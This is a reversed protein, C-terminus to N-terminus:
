DMSAGSEFRLREILRESLHIAVYLVQYIGEAVVQHQPIEAAESTRRRRAAEDLQEVSDNIWDREDDLLREYHQDAIDILLMSLRDAREKFANWAPLDVTEFLPSVKSKWRYRQLLATAFRMDHAAPPVLDDDCRYKPPLPENERETWLQRWEPKMRSAQEYAQRLVSFLDHFADRRTPRSRGRRFLFPQATLIVPLALLITLTTVSLHRSRPRPTYTV